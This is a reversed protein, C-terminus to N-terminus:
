IPYAGPPQLHILLPLFGAMQEYWESRDGPFGWLLNWFVHVGAARAYRLLRLNQQASVGKKMLDLLGNSLSEIGAQISVIGAKKLARVQSLSLNAKQEYFIKLSLSEAGLQPVLSSFYSHPMINDSMAVRRSTDRTPLSRLELIVREPSKERFAM